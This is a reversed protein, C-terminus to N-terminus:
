PATREQLHHLARDLSGFSESSLRDATIQLESVAGTAECKREASRNMHPTPLTPHAADIRLRRPGAPRGFLAVKLPLQTECLDIPLRNQLLDELDTFGAVQFISSHTDSVASQEAQRIKAVDSEPIGTVVPKVDPSDTTEILPRNDALVDAIQREMLYVSRQTAEPATPAPGPETLVAEISTLQTFQEAPSKCFVTAKAGSKLQSDLWDGSFWESSSVLNTPTGKTGADQQPPVHSALVVIDAFRGSIPSLQPQSQTSPSEAGVSKDSTDHIGSNAAPSLADSQIAQREKMQIEGTETEKDARLSGALILTGAILLGGIFVLNWPSMEGSAAATVPDALDSEEVPPEPATETGNTSSFRNEQSISQVVLPTDLDSEANAATQVAASTASESYDASSDSLPIPMQMPFDFSSDDPLTGPVSNQLQATQPISAPLPIASVSSQWESFAPALNGFGKLGSRNGHSVTIVDGHAVQDAPTASAVATRGQFRSSINMQQGPSLQNGTQLLVDGVAIAEDALAVVIVGADTRLAANRRVPETVPLLSQAVLIDGNMVLEGTDAATFTILQTWLSRDQSARIVSVSISDSLVGATMVAQRVTTRESLPFYNYNRVDGIVVYSQKASPHDPADVPLQQGPSTHATAVFTAIVLVFKLREMAQVGYFCFAIM